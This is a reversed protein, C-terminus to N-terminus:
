GQRGLVYRGGADRWTLEHIAAIAELVAEPDDTPFRGTVLLEGLAPDALEVPRRSIRNLKRVLQSVPMENAELWGEMWGPREGHVRTLSRVREGVLELGSGAPLRWQRGVGAEVSVLGRYVQIVRTDKDIRDVDFATGLVSIRANGTEVTFSRLREHAVDFFAEGQVLEVDRSWPTIRAAVRTEADMRITSGDQLVVTRTQGHGTSFESQEELWRPAAVCIAAVMCIAAAAPAVRAWSMRRLGRLGRPKADGDDNSPRLSWTKDSLAADLEESQWLASLRAYSEVHRPDKLIWIDFDAATDSDLVPRNMREVWQAAQCDISVMEHGM